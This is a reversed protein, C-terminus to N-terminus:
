YTLATASIKWGGSPTGIMTMVMTGTELEMSDKEIVYNATVKALYQDKIEIDENSVSLTYSSTAGLACDIFATPTHISNSFVEDFVTSLLFFASGNKFNSLFNTRNGINFATVINNLTVIPEENMPATTEYDTTDGPLLYTNNTTTLKWGNDTNVYFFLDIGSGVTNSNIVEEYNAWSTAVGKFISFETNSIQLEHPNPDNIIYNVFQPGSM